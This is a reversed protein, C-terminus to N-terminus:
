RARLGDLLTADGTVDLVDFGIRGWLALLLDSATGTAHVRAHHDDDDFLTGTDLLAVGEGRLRLFWEQDTDAAVLQVVGHLPERSYRRGTPLFTDLVESIGDIALKVEIPGGAATAMQADWRHIATEHAMRRHWFAAKKPQPAWNWLPAEADVADLAVMLADFEARWWGLAADGGPLDASQSRPAPAETGGREIIGRVWSYISGLHHVLDTMTWEPCSLIPTDPPAQSVADGFAPGETRLAGLWFEKTGHLRSM